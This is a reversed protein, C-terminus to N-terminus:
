TLRLSLAREVKMKAGQQVMMVVGSVGDVGSVLGIDGV